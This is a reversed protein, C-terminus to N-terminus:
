ITRVYLSMATIGVGFLSAIRIINVAHMSAALYDETRKEGIYPKEVLRGEYTSPGGLRVGLAGAIAAEPVGSNPSPHNRGDRFMIKLSDFPHIPSHAFLRILVSSFFILLGTIRAPIFNAIDDLRAAAWGFNKYRENKYGVMSDMTNIAKYTMALPLGGVAFYFLPAIIGDSANEALSEIAARTVGKEDLANTDRGVINSLEKRADEISNNELARLIKQASSVLEKAAITTATLGIMVVLSWYSALGFLIRNILYFLSYVSATVILVLFVGALKEKGRMINRLIIEIKAVALGIGRVPHPLWGPDGILLDLIFALTLLAYPQSLTLYIDRTSEAM